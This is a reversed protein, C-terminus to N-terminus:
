GEILGEEILFERALDEIEKGEEDAQYNLETMRADDLSSALSNLVDRVEPNSDLLEQRVVPAAYYPPFFGLDDELLVLDLSEIRGDTSFAVIVDVDDNDVASYMLGPDLPISDKFEFGYLDVLGPLGDERVEFEQTSGFVMDGAHSELDSIKTVGLEEADSRKMAIANTNNFGLPDLWEIGFEEPYKEAVIKYVEDPIESPDVDPLELGLIAMLGTGTYEVYTDLDGSVTAEHAVITGGLNLQREVGYGNAELLQSYVEGLLISETFNKSGVRVTPKEDQAFAGPTGLVTSAAIGATSGVVLKRRSISHSM